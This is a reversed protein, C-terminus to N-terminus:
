AWEVRAYLLAMKNGVTSNLIGLDQAPMSVAIDIIDRTVSVGEAAMTIDKDFLSNITNSKGSGILGLLLITMSNTSRKAEYSEYAFSFTENVDDGKVQTQLWFEKFKQRDPIEM